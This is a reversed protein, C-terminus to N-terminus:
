YPNTCGVQSSKPFQNNPNAPPKSANGANGPSGSYAFDGSCFSGCGRSTIRCFAAAGAFPIFGSGSVAVKTVGEVSVSTASLGTVVPAAAEAILAKAVVLVAVALIM